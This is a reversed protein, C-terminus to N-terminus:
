EADLLGCGFNAAGLEFLDEPCSRDAQEDIRQLALDGVEDLFVPLDAVALSALGDHAVTM